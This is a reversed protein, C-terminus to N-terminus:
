RRTRSRGRGGHNSHANSRAANANRARSGCTTSYNWAGGALLACALGWFSGKGGAQGYPGYSSTTVTIDGYSPTTSTQGYMVGDRGAASTTRLWQWLLGCGEEVGYISIMRRGATDSHGGAGDGPMTSGAINTEENSGMMALAFEGDDLLEKKVCLMDEVHDVYQRTRTPAGQYVSKTNAGSGSQLYIDVWFDLEPIYVMGEPESHPRHNLCWVSYPLIDGAVYGNLPHNLTAGGKVYTLGNGVNACLTHFGGILRVNAPDYDQPNTKSLSIRVYVEGLELGPCLFVYYDKGNTLLGTDLYSGVDLVMDEDASFTSAGLAIKTGAKITLERIGSAVIFPSGDKFVSDMVITEPGNNIWEFIPPETDPTNVLIWINGDFLNKVRTGNWIQLQDTGGIKLLAYDTLVQQSPDNGFDYADLFGGPSLGVITDVERKLFATRKALETIPKNDVGAAGGQVWSGTVFGHVKESWVPEDDIEFFNDEYTEVAM